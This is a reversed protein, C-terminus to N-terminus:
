RIIMIRGEGGGPSKKQPQEQAVPAGEKGITELPVTPDRLCVKEEAELGKEV